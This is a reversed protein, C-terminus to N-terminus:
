YYSKKWKTITNRSLKFHRALQMNNLKNKKQYALIEYIDSKSYSRHKQNFINTEKNKNGFIITNLQIVDLVSLEEKQLFPQCKTEKEPHFMMILDRYIRSYNPKSVKM